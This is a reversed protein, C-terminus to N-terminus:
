VRGLLFSALMRVVRDEGFDVHSLEKLKGDEHSVLTIQITLFMHGENRAVNECSMESM